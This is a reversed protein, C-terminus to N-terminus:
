VHARGIKNFSLTWELVKEREQLVKNQLDNCKDQLSNVQGDRQNVEGRLFSVTKHLHENVVTESDLKSKIKSLEHDLQYETTYHELAVDCRIQKERDERKDCEDCKTESLNKQAIELEGKVSELQSTLKTCDAFAKKKASLQEEVKKELLEIRLQRNESSNKSIIEVIRDELDAKLTNEPVNNDTEVQPPEKVGDGFDRNVELLQSIKDLKERYKSQSGVCSACTFKRGRAVVYVALQYEPLRTCQYHYWTPCEGCQIMDSNDSKQCICSSRNILIEKVFTSADNVEEDLNSRNEGTVEQVLEDEATAFQPDTICAHCIDGMKQLTCTDQLKTIELGVDDVKVPSDSVEETDSKCGLEVVSASTKLFSQYECLSYSIGVHYVVIDDESFDNAKLNEL